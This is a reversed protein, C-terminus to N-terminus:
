KVIRLTYKYKWGNPEDVLIMTKGDKGVSLGSGAAEPMGFYMGLSVLFGGTMTETKAPMNYWNVCAGEGAYAVKGAPYARKLTLEVSNSGPMGTKVSIVEVHDYAGDTKQEPCPQGFMSGGPKGKPLASPFNKIVPKGFIAMETPNWDFSVEYRDSVETQYSNTPGSEPNVLIATVGAYEAVVDYHIVEASTWKLMEDFQEADVPSVVLALALVTVSVVTSSHKM